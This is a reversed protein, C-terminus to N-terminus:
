NSLEELKKQLDKLKQNVKTKDSEELVYWGNNWALEYTDRQLQEIIEFFKIIDKKLKDNSAETLATATNVLICKENNLIDNLYDRDNMDVTCTVKTEECCVKSSM